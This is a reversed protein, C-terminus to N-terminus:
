ERIEFDDGFLNLAMAAMGAHIRQTPFGFYDLRGNPECWDNGGKSNAKANQGRATHHADNLNLEKKSAVKIVWFFAADRLWDARRLRGALPAFARNFDAAALDNGM